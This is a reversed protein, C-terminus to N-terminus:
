ASIGRRVRTDIVESLDPPTGPPWGTAREYVEHLDRVIAEADLGRGAYDIRPLFRLVSRSPRYLSDWATPAVPTGEIVVPLVLADTRAILMGVGELFPLLCPRPEAIHGEPFIGICGGARLHRLAERLSRSEQATRDVYITRAFALVGELMPVRMDDAMMWRPEFPLAAQVLIPDVGATHNAVVLLPREDADPDPTGDRRLLKRQPVHERGEVRLRHLVRAYVQFLRVVAASALDGRRIEARRIWAILAVLAIWAVAVLVGLMVIADPM